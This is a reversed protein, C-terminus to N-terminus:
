LGNAMAMPVGPRVSFAVSTGRELKGFREKSCFLECGRTMIFLYFTPVNGTLAVIFLVIFLATTSGEPYLSLPVAQHFRLLITFYTFDLDFIVIAVPNVLKYTSVDLPPNTM